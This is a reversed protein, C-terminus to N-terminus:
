AGTIATTMMVTVSTLVAHQECHDSISVSCALMHQGLVDVFRYLVSGLLASERSM